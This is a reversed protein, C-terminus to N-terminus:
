LKRSNEYQMDKLANVIAVGFGCLDNELGSIVDLVEKLKIMRKKTAELNEDPGASGNEVIIDLPEDRRCLFCM